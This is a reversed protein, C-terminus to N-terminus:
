SKVLAPKGLPVERVEDADSFAGCWADDQVRPFVSQYGVEVGGLTKVPVPFSRPPSERCEGMNADMPSYFECEACRM